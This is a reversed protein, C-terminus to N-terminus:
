VQERRESVFRALNRVTAFHERVEKTVSAIKIGYKKRLAMGLELADISDLGLGQDFLIEDSGIEEPSIDELNLTEVILVKIESEIDAM